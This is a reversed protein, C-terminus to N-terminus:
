NLRPEQTKNNKNDDFELLGEEQHNRDQSAAVSQGDRVYKLTLQSNQSDRVQKNSGFQNSNQRDRPIKSKTGITINNNNYEGFDGEIDFDDGDENLERLLASADRISQDIRVLEGQNIKLQHSVAHSKTHSSSNM